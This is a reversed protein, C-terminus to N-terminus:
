RLYTTKIVVEGAAPLANIEYVKNYQDTLPRSMTVHISNLLSGTSITTVTRTPTKLWFRLTGTKTRPQEFLFNNNFRLAMKQNPRKVIHFSKHANHLIEDL